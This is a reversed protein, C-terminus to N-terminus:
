RGFVEMPILWLKVTPDLVTFATSPRTASIFTFIKVLGAPEVDFDDHTTKRKGKERTLRSVIKDNNGRRGLAVGDVRAATRKGPVKMISIAM